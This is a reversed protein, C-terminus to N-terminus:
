RLGALMELRSTVEDVRHRSVRDDEQLGAVFQLLQESTRAIAPRQEPTAVRARKLLNTAMVATTELLALADTRGVLVSSTMRRAMRDIM